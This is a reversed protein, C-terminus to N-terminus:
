EAQCEQDRDPEIEPVLGFRPVGGYRGLLYDEKLTWESRIRFRNLCFLTSSHDPKREAFWVEDQRLVDLDMLNTDHMTAILQCPLSDTIRYFSQIFERTLKTHLSRDIEDVLVICGQRCAYYIPLLGLLRKTGDSEDSFAFLDRPNGHDVANRGGSLNGDRVNQISVVDIGTDFYDLLAAWDMNTNCILQPACRSASAPSLIWLRSFWESADRFARFAIDDDPARFAVDSLFLVQSLKASRFDSLYVRFRENVTNEGFGSEMHYSLGDDAKQRLFVCTEEPVTEYLWEELVTASGYSIAFGYSYFRGISLFDFQFVGPRSKFPEDIRFYKRDCDVKDLGTTIIDQAFSVAEIFNSKGSANASFIFSSKLFRKGNIAVLHNCHQAARGATMYFSAQNKFSKFNEVSFRMLM